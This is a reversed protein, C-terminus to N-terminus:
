SFEDSTKSPIGGTSFSGFLEDRITLSMSDHLEKLLEETKGIYSKVKAPTVKQTNIGEKIAFGLITKIETDILNKRSYRDSVEDSGIEETYYIYGTTLCFHAVANLYGDQVCLEKLEAIIQEETRM